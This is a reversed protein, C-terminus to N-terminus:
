TNFWHLFLKEWKAKIIELKLYQFTVTFDWKGNCEMSLINIKEDFNPIEILEEFLDEDQIKWIINHPDDKTLEFLDRNINAFAIEYLFDKLDKAEHIGTEKLFKQFTRKNSERNKQEKEYGTIMAIPHYIAQTEFCKKIQKKAQTGLWILNHNRDFIKLLLCRVDKMGGYLLKEIKDEFPQDEHQYFYLYNDSVADVIFGIEQWFEEYIDWQTVNPWDEITDHLIGAILLPLHQYQEYILLGVKLPHHIFPRWSYKRVQDRHAEIAFNVAKQIFKQNSHFDPFVSLRQRFGELIKEIKFSDLM